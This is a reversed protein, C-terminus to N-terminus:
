DVSIVFVEKDDDDNGIWTSIPYLDGNGGKYGLVPMDDPLKELKEKLEKTTM